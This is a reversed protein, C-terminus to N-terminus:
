SPGDGGLTKVRATLPSSLFKGRNQGSDRRWSRTSAIFNKADRVLGADRLDLADLFSEFALFFRSFRM